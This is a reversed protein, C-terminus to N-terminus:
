FSEPVRCESSIWTKGEEHGCKANEEDESRWSSASTRGAKEVMEKRGGVELVFRYVCSSCLVRVLPCTLRVACGYEDFLPSAVTLRKCLYRHPLVTFQPRMVGRQHGGDLVCLASMSFPSLCSYSAQVPLPTAAGHVSPAHGGKSSWWRLRVACEDFFPQPLAAGEPVEYACMGSDWPSACSSESPPADTMDTQLPTMQDM